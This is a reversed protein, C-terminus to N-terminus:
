CTCTCFVNSLVTSTCCFSSLVVIVRFLASCFKRHIAFHLTENCFVFWHIVKSNIFLIAFNFNM